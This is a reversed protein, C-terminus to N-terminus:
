RNAPAKLKVGGRGARAKKEISKRVATIRQEDNFPIVVRSGPRNASVKGQADRTLAYEAAAGKLSAMVGVVLTENSSKLAELVLEQGSTMQLGKGPPKLLRNWDIDLTTHTVGLKQLRETLRKLRSRPFSWTESSTADLVQVRM